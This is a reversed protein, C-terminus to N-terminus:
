WHVISIYSHRFECTVTEMRRYTDDSRLNAQLELLKASCSTQPLDKLSAYKDLLRSPSNQLWGQDLSYLFSSAAPNESSIYSIELDPNEM